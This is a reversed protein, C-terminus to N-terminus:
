HAAAGPGRRNSWRTRRWQAACAPAPCRCRTESRAGVLVPLLDLAGRLQGPARRLLKGGRDGGLKAPQPVPQPQGVVIEDAGRFLPVLAAHLVEEGRQAIASEDVLAGVGALVAHRVLRLNVHRGSRGAGIAPADGLGDALLVVEELQRGELALQQLEVLGIGSKMCGSDVRRSTIENTRLPSLSRETLRVCSKTPCEQARRHSARRDIYPEIRQGVVDRRQAIARVIGRVLRSECLEPRGVHVQDALFDAAEMADVPRRKQHGRADRSRTRHLGVAPQQEVPVLIDFDRPLM